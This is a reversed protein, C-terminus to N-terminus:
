EAAAATSRAHRAPRTERFTAFGQQSLATVQDQCDKFEASLRDVTGQWWRQQIAAAEATDRCAALKSWADFNSQLQDSCTKIWRDAIAQSSGSLTKCNDLWADTANTLLSTWGTADRQATM